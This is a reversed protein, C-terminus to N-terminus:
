QKKDVQTSFSFLHTDDYYKLVYFADHKDLVSVVNQLGYGHEMKNKKTTIIKNDKIVVPQATLNEIYLFSAQEEVRMKLLVYRKSEDPVKECAEIANDILNSLVIILEDDALPFKSLDDLQMTFRIGRSEAIASKQSLIVDAATRHTKVTTTGLTSVNQLREIYHLMESQPANSEVFGHLAIILNNFDHTQKRQQEYAKKWAGVSELETKMSQRLIVADRVAAQQREIYNLVFVSVIDLALLIANCVLLEHATQPYDYFIKLLLVSLLLTALPLYLVRLWDFINAANRLYHPKAWSHIVVVGFLEAIKASFAMLYYAYPDSFLYQAKSGMAAAVASIIANDGITIYALWFVVPFLSKAIGANYCCIILTFAILLTSVYKVYPVTGLFFLILCDLAAGLVFAIIKKCRSGRPEFLGDAFVYLIVIELVIIATNLVNALLQSM